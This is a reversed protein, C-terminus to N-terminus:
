RQYSIDSLGIEAQVGTKKALPASHPRNTLPISRYRTPPRRVIPALGLITLDSRDPAPYRVAARCRAGDSTDPKLAHGCTLGAQQGRQARLQRHEADLRGDLGIQNDRM